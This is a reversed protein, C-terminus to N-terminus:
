RVEARDRAKAKELQELGRVLSDIEKLAANEDLIEEDDQDEEARTVDDSGLLETPKFQARQAKRLRYLRQRLEKHERGSPLKVDNTIAAAALAARAVVIGSGRFPERNSRVMGSPRRQVARAGRLDRSSSLEAIREEVDRRDLRFPGYEEELNEEGEIV